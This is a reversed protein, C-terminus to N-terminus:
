SKMTVGNHTYCNLNPATRAYMNSPTCVRMARVQGCVLAAARSRRLPRRRLGLPATMRSSDVRTGPRYLPQPETWTAVLILRTEGKGWAALPTCPRPCHPTDM